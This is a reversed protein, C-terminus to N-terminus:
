FELSLAPSGVQRELWRRYYRRRAGARRHIHFQAVHFGKDSRGRDRTFDFYLVTFCRTGLCRRRAQPDSQFTAHADRGHIVRLIRTDCDFQVM